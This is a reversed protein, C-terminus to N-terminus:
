RKPDVVQTDCTWSKNFVVWSFDINVQFQYQLAPDAPTGTVRCATNFALECEIKETINTLLHTLTFVGKGPVFTDDSYTASASSVSWSPLVCDTSQKLALPSAGAISALALASFVKM